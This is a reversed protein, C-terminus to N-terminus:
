TVSPESSSARNNCRAQILLKVSAWVARLAPSSMLYLVLIALMRLPVVRFVGHSEFRLVAQEFDPELDVTACAGTGPIVTLASLVAWFRGTEAPDGFGIRGSVDLAHIRVACLLDKFLRLTRTILGDTRVIRLAERLATRRSAMRSGAPAKEEKNEMAAPKSRSSEVSSASGGPRIKLRGFLWAVAIDTSFEDTRRISVSVHVPIALILLGCAVLLTLILTVELMCDDRATIM